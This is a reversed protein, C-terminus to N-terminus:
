MPLPLGANGTRRARHPRIEPEPVSRPFTARARRSPPSVPRPPVGRPLLALPAALRPLARVTLLGAPAPPCAGAATRATRATLAEVARSLATLEAATVQLTSDMFFAATRGSGPSPTSGPWTSASRADDWALLSESCRTCRRADRPPWAAVGHGRLAWRSVGCGNGGDGRGPAAEVLGARALARLHYSTASPSLGCGACETATAPGGNRLHELLALRAPHAHGAHGRRGPQVVAAGAQSRM